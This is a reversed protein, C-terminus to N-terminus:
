KQTLKEAGTKNKRGGGKRGREERRIYRAIDQQDAPLPNEQQRGGEGERCRREGGLGIRTISEIISVFGRGVRLYEGKM